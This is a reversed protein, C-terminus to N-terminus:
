GLTDFISISDVAQSLTATLGASTITRVLVGSPPIPLYRTVDLTAMRGRAQNPGAVSGVLARVYYYPGQSNETTTAWDGPLTWSVINEGLVSFSSTGDTVGSLATWAGNWYQWTIAFGSGVDSVDIKLQTFQEPHGLLYADGNVPTTPTLTMDNTAPSNSNTTEDTQVGGDDAIAATALGQNRARVLVDLGAGFAAEYNFTTDQITGTSDALGELLVDGTTVTGLTENAILTGATGEAIGDIAITVANVITPATGSNRVTPSTGGNQINLTVAVNASIYVEADTTGDAGYGTYNWNDLDYTGAVSIEVAHGTGDSNFTVNSANNSDGSTDLLVAGNADFAGNFTVSDMNMGNMIFQDCNNFTQNDANKDVDVGPATIVGFDVWSCGDLAIEDFSANDWYFETRGGISQNVVRTQTFNNTGTGGVLRMPFHTAGVAKGGGNDVLYLWTEDTGTFYSDTAGSDGWETPVFIYYTSGIPNSFMAAGLTIDDGVVDAMTEPTGVTGGTITAAYGTTASVSNAIYYIGDFWANPITGQGKALHISGYGVQKIITQDLNAETGNHQFFDVGSTGPAAVVVSVDLKYASYKFEYPLGLVDVGAVVYGITTTSTGDATDDMVIQVGLNAFTDQLNDKVNVYVTSDSLDLNFTAGAADQDYALYEQANTVQFALANTGEIVLGAEATNAQPDANSDSSVDAVAESDQLQTRNDAVAM